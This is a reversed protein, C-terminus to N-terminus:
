KKSKNRYYKKQSKQENKRGKEIPNKKWKLAHQVVNNIIWYHSQCVFSWNGISPTLTITDGDYSLQWGVPSLPTVVKQGCGCPCKHIVTGFEMSVYLIGEELETPM